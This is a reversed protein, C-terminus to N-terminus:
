HEANRDRIKCVFFLLGVPHGQDFIDVNNSAISLSLETMARINCTQLRSSCEILHSVFEYDISWTHRCCLVPRSVHAHKRAVRDHKCAKKNSIRVMPHLGKHQLQSICLCPLEARSYLCAIQSRFNSIRAFIISPCAKIV